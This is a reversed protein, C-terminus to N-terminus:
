KWRYCKFIYDAVSNDEVSGIIQDAALKTLHHGNSMANGNAAYKIMEIDNCNDGFAHTNCHGINELEILKKLVNSKNIGNKVIEIYHPTSSFIDYDPLLQKLQSQLQDSDEPKVILMVKPSPNFIIETTAPQGTFRQEIAIYNCALNDTRICEEDFYVYHINLQQCTTIIQKLDDSDLLQQDILQHQSLDYLEAGNYGSVYKLNIGEAKLQKAIGILNNTPRGSTLVFLDGQQETLKIAQKLRNSFKSDVSSVLTGDVDSVFLKKM